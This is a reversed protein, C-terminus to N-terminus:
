SRRRVALGVRSSSKLCSAGAFRGFENLLSNTPPTKLTLHALKGHVGQAGNKGWDM